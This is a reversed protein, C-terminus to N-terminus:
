GPGPPGRGPCGQFARTRVLGDAEGEEEAPDTIRSCHDSLFNELRATFESEGDFGDDTRAHATAGTETEPEPETVSAVTGAPKRPSTM